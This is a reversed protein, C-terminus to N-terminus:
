AATLTQELAQTVQRSRQAAIAPFDKKTTNVAQRVRKVAIEISGIKQKSYNLIRFGTPLGSFAGVELLLIDDMEVVGSPEGTKFTVYYVDDEEDYYESFDINMLGKLEKRM